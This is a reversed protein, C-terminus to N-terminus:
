KSRKRELDEKVTEFFQEVLSRSFRVDLAGESRVVPAHLTQDKSIVHTMHVNVFGPADYYIFQCYYTSELPPRNAPERLEALTQKVLDQRHEGPALILERTETNKTRNFRHAITMGNRDQLKILPYLVTSRQLKGSRNMKYIVGWYLIDDVYQFNGTPGVMALDYLHGFGLHANSWGHLEAQMLRAVAAISETARLTPAVNPSAFPGVFGNPPIVSSAHQDGSGDTLTADVFFVEIPYDSRWRFCLEHEGDLFWGILTVQLSQGLDSAADLSTLCDVFAQRAIPGLEALRQLREIVVGAAILHGTWAVALNEAILVVKKRAACAAGRTIMTDGIITPVGFSRYAAVLTV